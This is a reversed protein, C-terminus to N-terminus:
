ETISDYHQHHSLEHIHLLRFSFQCPFSCYKSFVHVLVVKGVVFGSHRKAYVAHAARDKEHLVQVLAVALLYSDNDGTRSVAEV